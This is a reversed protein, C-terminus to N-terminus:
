KVTVKSFRQRHVGFVNMPIPIGQELRERVFAVLTQPHVAKKRRVNLPRKRQRLDREFKDAWKDDGKGFDITFQRKILEGDGHEELWKFAVEETAKPISGRIVGKIQIRVLGDSTTFEEMGAEEMLEPMQNESIHRVIEKAEKLEESLSLVRAEAHAQDGALGSIRAMMNDGVVMAVDRFEDYNDEIKKTLRGSGTPITRCSSSVALASLQSASVHPPPREMKRWQEAGGAVGLQIRWYVVCLM